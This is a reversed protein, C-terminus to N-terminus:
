HNVGGSLRTEPEDSGSVLRVFRYRNSPSHVRKEAVSQLLSVVRDSLRNVSELCNASVSVTGARYIQVTIGGAIRSGGRVPLVLVAGASLPCCCAFPLATCPAWWLSAWCTNSCFQERHWLVGCPKRGLIEPVTARCIRTRAPSLLSSSCAM